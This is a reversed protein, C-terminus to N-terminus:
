RYQRRVQRCYRGILSLEDRRRVYAVFLFREAYSWACEGFGAVGGVVVVSVDAAGPSTSAAMIGPAAPRRLRIPPLTTCRAQM